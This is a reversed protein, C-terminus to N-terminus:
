SRHTISGSETEANYAAHRPMANFAGLAQASEHNRLRRDAAYWQRSFDNEPSCGM